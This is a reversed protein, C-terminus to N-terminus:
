RIQYNISEIHNLIEEKGKRNAASTLFFLPLEEWSQSLENKYKELIGNLQRPKTKDVKTFIIALPVQNEGAQEIFNIDIERPNHRSDILVFLQTLQKRNLIYGNIINEIRKNTEKSRKAYGYGPLDVLYWSDNILFHNIHLTKGPTGSIRALNKKNTLMNILSSKGVNSRGVFAYEPLNHVPCKRYDENSMIYEASKILM